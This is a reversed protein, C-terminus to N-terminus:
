FPIEDSSGPSSQDSVTEAHLAAIARRYRGLAVRLRRAHTLIADAAKVEPRHLQRYFPEDDTLNPHAAVVAAALIDLAHDIVALLAVEPAHEIEPPAPRWDDGSPPSPRARM